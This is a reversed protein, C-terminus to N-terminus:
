AADAGDEPRHDAGDEDADEEVPEHQHLDRGVDLLDDDAHDDHEGDGEVSEGFRPSSRHLNARANMGSMTVIPSGSKSNFWPLPSVTKRGPCPPSVDFQAM